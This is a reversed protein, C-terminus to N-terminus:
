ESKENLWDVTKKLGEDLSTITYGLEMEAKKSSVAWDHLYKEIWKPTILPPLGTLQSFWYQASGGLYMMWYPMHYLRQQKGTVKRLKQFFGDYTINEGGTIYREGSKGKDMALLHGNVVDDVFVYNGCKKGNGPIIRWKGRNFQKIIKTMANSESILGPGYVRTPNVIVVELGKDIFSLSLKEAEAKTQEYANFYPVTRATSETVPSQGDSPELTGGTSTFVVRRLKHQYALNLLNSTGEVNVKHPWDKDKSWVRAYAALHFACDCGKIAAEMKDNNLLDGDFLHINSHTLKDARRKDRVLAHVTHGNGALCLALREGIYGTAGTIFYRM